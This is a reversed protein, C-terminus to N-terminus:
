ATKVEKHCAKSSASNAVSLLEAAVGIAIAQPHKGLSPDGIPCTIRAIQAPAHGLAALRKRFRAWKTASGILGAYVFPRQLVTHCLELDYDHEPTMILHMAHTPAQEMVETPPIDHSRLVNDPLAALQHPRVDAVYVEFQPMPALVAALAQGVHGAGYIYVPQRDQWVQEVLWGDVIQTQVEASTRAALSLQRHLKDPLDAGGEVRRRYIGDYSWDAADVEARYRTADWVETVLTVAGGCCQGLAPGRSRG